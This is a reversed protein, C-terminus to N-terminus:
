PPPIGLELGLELSGEEVSVEIGGVLVEGGREVIDVIAVGVESRGRCDVTVEM